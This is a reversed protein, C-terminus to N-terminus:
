SSAAPILVCRGLPSCSSHPALGQSCAPLLRQPCAPPSCATAAPNQVPVATAGLLTAFYGSASRGVAAVSLTYELILNAAVIRRTGPTLTAWAPLQQQAEESASM